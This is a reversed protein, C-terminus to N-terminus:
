LRAGGQGQFALFAGRLSTLPGEEVEVIAAEAEELERQLDSVNPADSEGPLDAVIASKGKLTTSIGRRAIVDEATIGLSALRMWRSARRPALGVRGLWDGWEGHPFRRKAETLLRGADLAASVAELRGMRFRSVADLTSLLLDEISRNADSM